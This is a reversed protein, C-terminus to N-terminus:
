LQPYKDISPPVEDIYYPDTAYMYWDPVTDENNKANYNDRFKKAASFDEGFEKTEDVKQGWGRESEIIDVKWTM